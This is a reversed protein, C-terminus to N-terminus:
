SLLRLKGWGKPRSLVGRRIRRGNTLTRGRIAPGDFDPRLAYLQLVFLAQEDTLLLPEGAAPGDPVILYEAM